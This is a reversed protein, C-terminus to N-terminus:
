KQAALWYRIELKRHGLWMILQDINRVHYQFPALTDFEKLKSLNNFNLDHSYDRSTTYANRIDTIRYQIDNNLLRLDRERLEIEALVRNAEEVTTWHILCSVRIQEYRQAFQFLLANLAVQNPGV